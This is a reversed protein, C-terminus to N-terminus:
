LAAVTAAKRGRAHQRTRRMKLALVLADGGYHNPSIYWDSMPIRKLHYVDDPPSNLGGALGCCCSYGAEQVAKLVQPTMNQEGGFPYAFLRVDLQLRQSLIKRSQTLEQVAQELPTAALDAHTCTHSGIDFGMASLNRAEDWSMFAHREGAAADWFTAELSGVFGTTLFFTAPLGHRQLIPAANLFNDKYGDDFTIAVEFPARAAEPSQLHLLMEPLSVVTFHRRLFICLAEFLAISCNLGNIVPADIIRHFGMVCFKGRLIGRQLRSLVALQWLLAKIHKRM